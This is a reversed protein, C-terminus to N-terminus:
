FYKNKLQWCTGKSDKLFSKTLWHLMHFYMHAKRYAHAVKLYLDVGQTSLAAKIDGYKDPLVSAVLPCLRFMDKEQEILRKHLTKKNHTVSTPNIRYACTVDNSYYFDGFCYLAIWQTWDGFFKNRMVNVKERVEAAHNNKYVVSNTAYYHEDYFFDSLSYKGAINGKVDSGLVGDLINGKDDVTICDTACAILTEDNELIEIQKQLKYPDTWFDDGECLAIYKSNDVWLKEYTYRGLCKSYHNYKMQIYAVYFNKNVKHQAFTTTAGEFDIVRAVFKDDVNFNEVVFKRLIDQTGDTSADDELMFLVPSDVEQMLFGNLCDSIYKSHNYILSRVCVTFKNTTM